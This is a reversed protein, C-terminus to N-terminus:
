LGGVIGLGCFDLFRHGVGEGGGWCGWGSVGEEGEGEEAAM